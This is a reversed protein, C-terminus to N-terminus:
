YELGWCVLMVTLVRAQLPRATDGFVLLMRPALAPKSPELGGAGTCVAERVWSNGAFDRFNAPFGEWSFKAPFKVVRLLQLPLIIVRVEASAETEKM